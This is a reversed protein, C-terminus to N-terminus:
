TPTTLLRTTSARAGRGRGPPPPVGRPQPQRGDTGVCTMESYLELVHGSPLVIRVGDGVEPNEGKSMRETVCGFARRPRRTSRGPGRRPGVKYGMKVMGVGGEELVVSHHDWEDWAKLYVSARNRVRPWLGLTDSYHRKAEALDTVRAHMYGLRLVGM